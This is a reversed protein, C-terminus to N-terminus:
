LVFGELVSSILLSGQYVIVKCREVLFAQLMSLQLGRRHLARILIRELSGPSRSLATAPGTRWEAAFTGSTKLYRFREALKVAWDEGNGALSTWM